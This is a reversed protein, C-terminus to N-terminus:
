GLGAAARYTDAQQKLWGSFAQLAASGASRDPHILYYSRDSTVARKSVTVLLGRALEDEILFPPVLAVGMGQIAAETLMSFLELRPGAM